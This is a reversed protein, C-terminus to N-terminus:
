FHDGTRRSKSVVRIRQGPKIVINKNTGTTVNSLADRSTSGGARGSNASSPASRSQLGGSGAAATTGHKEKALGKSSASYSYGDDTASDYDDVTNLRSATSQQPSGKTLSSSLKKKDSGSFQRNKKSITPGVFGRLLEETDEGDSLDSDSNHYKAADKNNLQGIQSSGDRKKSTIAKAKRQLGRGGDYEDDEEASSDVDVEEDAYHNLKPPSDVFTSPQFEDDSSLSDDDDKSKGKKKSKFHISSNIMSMDKIPIKTTSSSSINRVDMASSTNVNHKTPSIIEKEIVENTFFKDHLALEEAVEISKKLVLKNFDELTYFCRDDRMASRQYRRQSLINGRLEKIVSEAHDMSEVAILSYSKTKTAIHKIGNNEEQNSEKM